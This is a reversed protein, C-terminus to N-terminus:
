YPFTKRSNKNYTSCISNWFSCLFLSGLVEGYTLLFFLSTTNLINHDLHSLHVPWLICADCYYLTNIIDSVWLDWGFIQICKEHWHGIIHKLLFISSTFVWSHLRSFYIFTSLTNLIFPLLFVSRHFCFPQEILLTLTLLLSEPFFFSSELSFNFHNNTSIKM